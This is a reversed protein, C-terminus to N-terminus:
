TTKSIENELEKIQKLYDNETELSEKYLEFDYKIMEQNLKFITFKKYLFALQNQKKLEQNSKLIKHYYENIKNYESIYWNLDEEKKEQEEIYNYLIGVEDQNQPEHMFYLANKAEQHTIKSM